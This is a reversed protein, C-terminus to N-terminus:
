SLQHIDILTLATFTRIYEHLVLISSYSDFLQHLAHFLHVRIKYCARGGKKAKAARKVLQNRSLEERIYRSLLRTLSKENVLVDLLPFLSLFFITRLPYTYLLRHTPSKLASPVPWGIRVSVGGFLLFISWNTIVYEFLFYLM